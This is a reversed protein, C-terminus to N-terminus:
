VVIAQSQTQKHQTTLTTFHTNKVHVQLSANKM